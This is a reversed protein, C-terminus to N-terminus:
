AFCKEVHLRGEEDFWYHRFDSIRILERLCLARADACYGKPVYLYMAAQLPALPRWRRAAAALNHLSEATEVMGVMEVLQNGKGVAVIHPYQGKVPRTQARKTNTYITFHTPDITHTAIRETLEDHSLSIATTAESM